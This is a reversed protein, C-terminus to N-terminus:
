VQGSVDRGNIWHRSSLPVASTLVAETFCMRHAQRILDLLRPEPEPSQIALEIEFGQCSGEKTGALISGQERFRALVQVSEGTLELKQM